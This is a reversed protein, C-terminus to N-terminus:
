KKALYDEGARRKVRGLFERALAGGNASQVGGRGRRELAVIGRM